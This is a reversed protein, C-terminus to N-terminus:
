KLNRREWESLMQSGMRTAAPPNIRKVLLLNEHPIPEGVNSVMRKIGHAQEGSQSYISGVVRILHKCLYPRQRPNRIKPKDGTSNIISSSGMLTLATECTFTFFPCSCHVWIPRDVIGGGAISRYLRVLVQRPIGSTTPDVAVFEWEDHVGPRDELDPTFRQQQIQVNLANNRINQPTANISQRLNYM